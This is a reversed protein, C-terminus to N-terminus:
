RRAPRVEHAIRTRKRKRIRPGNSQFLVSEPIKNWIPLMSEGFMAKITKFAPGMMMLFITSGLAEILVRWYANGSGEKNLLWELFRNVAITMTLVFKEPMFLLTLALETKTIVVQDIIAEEYAALFQIAETMLMVQTNDKPEINPWPLPIGIDGLAAAALSIQESNFEPIGILQVKTWFKNVLALDKLVAEPSTWEKIKDSLKAEAALAYDNM